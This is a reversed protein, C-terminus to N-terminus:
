NSERTPNCPNQPTCLGSTATHHVFTPFLAPLLPLLDHVVDFTLFVPIAFGVLLGLKQPLIRQFVLVYIVLYFLAIILFHNALTLTTLSSSLPNVEFGLNNAIAYKTLLFAITNLFISIALACLYLLGQKMALRREVSQLGKIIRGNLFSSVAFTVILAIVSWFVLDYVFANTVLVRGSRVIPEVLYNELYQFPFGQHTLYNAITYFITRVSAVELTGFIIAIGLSLWTPILWRKPPKKPLFCVRCFLVFRFRLKLV